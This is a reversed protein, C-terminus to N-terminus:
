HTAIRYRIKVGSSEKTFGIIQLSGMNGEQTQFLFTHTLGDTMQLRRTAANTAGVVAQSVQGWRQAAQDPPLEWDSDEVQVTRLNNISVVGTPKFGAGDKGDYAVSLDMERPEASEGDIIIPGHTRGTDLDLMWKDKGASMEIESTADAFDAAFNALRQAAREDSDFDVDRILWDGGDRGMELVVTVPDPGDPIPQNPKVTESVAIGRGRKESVRVLALDLSKGGFLAAFERIGRRSTPGRGAPVLAVAEDIRGELAAAVYREAVARADSGPNWRQDNAAKDVENNREPPTRVWVGGGAWRITDGQVEGYLGNRRWDVAFVFGAPDYELRSFAGNEDKVFMGTPTTMITCPRSPNKVQYWTGEVPNTAMVPSTVAGTAQAAAIDAATRKASPLHQLLLATTGGLIVIGAIIGLKLKTSAMLKLLTFTSALPVAAGATLSAATVTTALGVPAAQFANASLIAALGSAAVTVGRKAFFTRLRELARSVRKEAADESAGLAAGVERLNRGEYFRLVIAHRDQENLGAVADDLMPAIKPWLDNGPDNLVSQMHAELERRHRRTESRVFNSATLRTTQFLWSSLAKDHRLQAAKKALLIFVAQAVEEAQHPDRVCRLAVSYVLNIHRSVLAAFAEESQSEM